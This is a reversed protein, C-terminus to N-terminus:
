GVAERAEAEDQKLRASAQEATEKRGSSGKLPDYNGQLLACTKVQQPLFRCACGRCGRSRVQSDTQGCDSVRVSAVPEDNVGVAIENLRLLTAM